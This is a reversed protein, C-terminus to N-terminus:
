EDRAGKGRATKGAGASATRRARGGGSARTAKAATKRAAAPRKATRGRAPAAKRRPAPREPEDDRDAEEHEAAEGTEDADDAARADDEDDAPRDEDDAGELRRTRQQLSDALSGARNTVTKTAADRTAHVLQDRVQDSLGALVPSKALTTALQRPDLNMKKGALFMGLGLALKAKRTRGLLYGGVLATGIKANREM